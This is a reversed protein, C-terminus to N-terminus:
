LLVDLAFLLSVLYRLTGLHEFLGFAASCFVLNKKELLILWMMSYKAHITGFSSTTPILISNRVAACLYNGSWFACDNM